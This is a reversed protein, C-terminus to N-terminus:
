ADPRDTRESWHPETRRPLRRESWHRETSLSGGRPLGGESWPMAFGLLGFIAIPAALLGIGAARATRTRDCHDNLQQSIDPADGAREDM